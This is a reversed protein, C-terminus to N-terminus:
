AQLEMAIHPIGDELYENGKIEFGLNIYFHKLYTQASIKIACKGYLEIAFEISNQMLTKGEGARRIEKNTVVRGIHIVSLQEDYFIRSYALLKNDFDQGMIHWCKKDYSDADQYICNQEIIFVEQRLALIDFLEGPALDEFHLCTYNLM